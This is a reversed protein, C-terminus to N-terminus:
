SVIEFLEDKKDDTIKAVMVSLVADSAPDSATDAKGAENGTEAAEQEEREKEADLHEAYLKLLAAIMANYDKPQGAARLQEWVMTYWEPRELRHNYIDEYRETCYKKSRESIGYMLREINIGDDTERRFYSYRLVTAIDDALQYSTLRDLMQQEEFPYMVRSKAIAYGVDGTFPDIYFMDHDQACPPCLVGGDMKSYRLIQKELVSQLSAGEDLSARLTDIFEPLGGESLPVELYKGSFHISKYELDIRKIESSYAEWSMNMKMALPQELKHASSVVYMRELEPDISLDYEASAKMSEAGRVRSFSFEGRLAADFSATETFAYTISVASVSLTRVSNVTSINM